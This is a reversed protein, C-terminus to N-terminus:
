QSVCRLKKLISVRLMVELDNLSPWFNHWPLVLLTQHIPNLIHEKVSGHAYTTVYWQWIYNLIIGCASIITTLALVDVDFYFKGPLVHLLFLICEQFSNLIKQACQVDATIWPLLVSRDDTLQQIWSAMNEKVNQMSYPAILPAFMDRIYPWVKECMKDSVLGQHTNLSSIILGHGIMGLLLAYVDMYHRCKPYLGYLGYQLREQTFHRALLETTELIEQYHLKEQNQAYARLQERLSIKIHIQTPHALSNLVDVWVSIAIPAVDTTGSSSQLLSALIEGYHEPFQFEFVTLLHKRYLGHLMMAEVPPDSGLASLGKIVIEIFQSRQNLKPNKMHLWNDVDFKSLLAFSVDYKQGIEQSISKYMILLNATCVNSPSFHPSLYESLCPEKLIRGLLRPMEFEVGCIHSEGLKELCTFFLTKTPLYNTTEENLLPLIYYFLEVGLEATSPNCKLQQQLI